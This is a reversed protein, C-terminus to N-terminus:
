EHKGWDSKEWDVCDKLDFKKSAEESLQDTKKKIEKSPTEPKESKFKVALDSQTLGEYSNKWIGKTGSFTKALGWNADYFDYEVYRTLKSPLSELVIMGDNFKLNNSKKFRYEYVWTGDKSLGKEKLPHTTYVMENKENPVLPVPIRQESFVTFFDGKKEIIKAEKLDDFLEPYDSYGDLVSRIKEITADVIQTQVFGILLEQGSTRICNVKLPETAQNGVSKLGTPPWHGLVEELKPSYEGPKAGMSKWDEAFAFSSILSASFLSVKILLALRM